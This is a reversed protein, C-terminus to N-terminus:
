RGAGNGIEHHPAGQEGEVARPSEGVLGLHQVRRRARSDKKDRGEALQHFFAPEM